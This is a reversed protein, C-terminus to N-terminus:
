RALGSRRRECTRAPGRRSAPSCRQAPRAPLVHERRDVLEAHGQSRCGCVVALICIPLTRQQITSATRFCISVGSGAHSCRSPLMVAGVRTMPPPGSLWMGWSWTASSAWRIEAEWSTVTGAPCRIWRASGSRKTWVTSVKRPSATRGAGALSLALASGGNRTGVSSSESGTEVAWLQHTHKGPERLQGLVAPPHGPGTVAHGCLRLVLRSFPSSSQAAGRSQIHSGATIWSSLPPM